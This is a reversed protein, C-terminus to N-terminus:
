KEAILYSNSIVKFSMSGDTRKFVVGEAGVGQAMSPRDAFVLLSQLISEATEGFDRLRTTEIYPVSPIDSGLKQLYAMRDERSLYCQRNIDFVDFVYFAISPLKERNGQIGPGMLEGQLAYGPNSKLSDLISYKREAVWFANSSSEKLEMNRSCVGYKSGDALCYVTMSSGDLKLSVEWERDLGPHYVLDNIINQVREQDTKRLFSPLYGKVDGSLSLPLPVEWKKVQLHDTVDMGEHVITTQTDTDLYYNNGVKRLPRILGQSVVGRMRMTKIRFGDGLIPNTRFSSKRLFEYKPEVPLFSDIEYFVVLDGEQIGVDKATIVKWGDIHAVVIRDADPIPDIKSVRRISALKRQIDM